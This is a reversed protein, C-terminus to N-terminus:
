DSASKSIRSDPWTEVEGSLLSTRDCLTACSFDFHLVFDFGSFLAMAVGTDTTFCELVRRLTCSSSELPVCADTTECLGCAIFSFSSKKRRATFRELIRSPPICPRESRLPWQVTEGGVGRVCPLLQRRNRYVRIVFGNRKQQTTSPYSSLVRTVDSM